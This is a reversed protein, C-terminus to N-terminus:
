LYRILCNYIYQATFQICSYRIFNAKKSLRCFAYHPLLKDIGTLILTPLVINWGLYNAFYVNYPLLYTVHSTFVKMASADIINFKRVQELKKMVKGKNETSKYASSLFFSGCRHAMITFGFCVPLQLFLEFWWGRHWIEMYRSNEKHHVTYYQMHYQFYIFQIQEMANWILIQCINM